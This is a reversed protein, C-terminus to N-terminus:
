PRDREQRGSEVELQRTVETEVLRRIKDLPVDRDRDYQFAKEVEYCQRVLAASVESQERALLELLVQMAKDDTTPPMTM